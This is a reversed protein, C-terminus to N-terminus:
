YIVTIPLKSIFRHVRKLVATFNWLLRCMVCPECDRQVLGCLICMSFGSITSLRVCSRFFYEQMFYDELLLAKRLTNM